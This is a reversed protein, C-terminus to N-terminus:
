QTQYTFLGKISSVATGAGNMARILYFYAGNGSVIGVDRFLTTNGNATMVKVTGADGAAFYARESRWVEYIENQPAHTWSLVVDNGEVTSNVGLVIPLFTEIGCPGTVFACIKATLVNDFVTDLYLNYGADNLHICDAFYHAPSWQNFNPNGPNGQLSGSTNVAFVNAYQNAVATQRLHIEHMGQNVVSPADSGFVGNMISSCNAAVASNLLDYGGIVVEVDNRTALLDIVITGLHSEVEDYVESLTEPEAGLVDNGGLTFFVLPNAKPDNEIATLLNAFTASEAWEAATSGGEAWNSVTIFSDFNHEQLAQGFTGYSDVMDAAWSDGFVYLTRANATPAPATATPTPTLTPEGTPTATATPQGTPTATATPQGTATATPTATPTPPATPAGLKGGHIDPYTQADAPLLTGGFSSGVQNQLQQNTKNVYQNSVGGGAQPVPVFDAAQEDFYLTQQSFSGFNLIISDNLLFHHLESRNDDDDITFDPELLIHWGNQGAFLSSRDLIIDGSLSLQRAVNRVETIRFNIRNSFRGNHVGIIGNRPMDFGIDFDEIITNEFQLHSNGSRNNHWNDAVIGVSNAQGTGILRTNRFTTHDNYNLDLGKEVGWLTTNELTSNLQDLYAQSVEPVFDDFWPTHLYLTTLGVTANYGLNNDFRGLPVWTTNIETLGGLLSRLTPDSINAAPFTTFGVNPQMLGEPWVLYAHGSAGSVVNDEVTLGGGWIVFGDGQWGFDQEAERIDPDQQAEDGHLPDNPNVTRLAINNTFSGLEDGAETSFAAGVVDYSVNNSFDVYGSHNVFGWGPSGAVVSGQVSAPTANPDIGGQHFHIAYRGRPNNGPGYQHPGEDFDPFSWDDVPITKDTRGLGYFGVNRIDVNLTHMLMVHGRRKPDIGQSKLQINRTLNAVHIELDARLPTHDFQLPDRLTITTGNIAQIIGKDDATVGQTAAVVIEDNVQWGAPVATLELQTAGALPATALTTWDTKDTGVMETSGCIILGRSLKSSDWTEDIPGADTFEVKATVNTAIPSAVTGIEVHGTPGAVITDVQLRTNVSPDFRLTGDIGITKLQPTLQGDVTITLGAPIYVNANATPPSGTQWITPNTWNGSSVATHTAAAPDVLTTAGCTMAAHAHGHPVEKGTISLQSWGILIGIIFLLMGFITTRFRTHM